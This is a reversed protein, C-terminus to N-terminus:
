VVQQCRMDPALIVVTECVLIGTEDVMDHILFGLDHTNVKRRICVAQQRYHVVAEATAMVDVDHDRAFVRRRLPQRHVGGDLVAGLADADPRPGAIVLINRGVHDHGTTAVHGRQLRKGGDGNHALMQRVQFYPHDVDDVEHLQLRLGLVRMPQAVHIKVFEEGLVLRDDKGEMGVWPQDVPQGVTAGVVGVDMDAAVLLLTGDGRGEIHRHQVIQVAEMEHHVGDIAQRPGAVLADVQLLLELVLKDLVLLVDFFIAFVQRFDPVPLPALVCSHSLSYLHRVSATELNFSFMSLM